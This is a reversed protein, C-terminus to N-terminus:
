PKITVPGLTREPIETWIYRFSWFNGQRRRQLPVVKVTFTEGTKLGRIIYFNRNLAQSNLRQYSGNSRSLYISYYNSRQASAQSWRITAAGNGVTATLNNNSLTIPSPSITPTLSISPTPTPILSTQPSPNTTPVTGDSTIEHAGIDIAKGAPRGLKSIDDVVLQGLDKGADVVISTAAPKGTNLDIGPDAKLSHSGESAPLAQSGFYVNYDSTLLGQLADSNIRIYPKDSQRHVIINNFFVPNVTPPGKFGQATNRIIHFPTDTAGDSIVTNNYFQPNLASVAGLAFQKSTIVLNNRAICNICEYREPNDQFWEADCYNGLQIGGAESDIITNREVILDIAGCKGYVATSKTREFRNDQIRVNKVRTVDIGNANPERQGTDHIYCSRIVANDVGPPMKVADRGSHHLECNEVTIHTDNLLVTYYYGGSVEVNQLISGKSGTGFEIVSSVAKENTTAYKDVLKARLSNQPSSSRITLNPKRIVIKNDVSHEGPLLILTSGATVEPRLVAVRINRWAQQESLGSNSDNGAPSIYFQKLSDAKPAFQLRWLGFLGLLILFIFILALKVNVRM